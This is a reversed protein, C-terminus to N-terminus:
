NARFSRVSLSNTQFVIQIYPYNHKTEFLKYKPWSFMNLFTSALWCPLSSVFQLVCKLVFCLIASRWGFWRALLYQAPASFWEALVRGLGQLVACSFSVVNFLGYLLGCVKSTAPKRSKAPPVRGSIKLLEQVYWVFSYIKYM